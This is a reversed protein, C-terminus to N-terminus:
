RWDMVHAYKRAAGIMGIYSEYWHGVEVFEGGV